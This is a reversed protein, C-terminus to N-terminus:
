RNHHLAPCSTFVKVLRACTESAHASESQAWIHAVTNQYRTSPDSSCRRRSTVNKHNPAVAATILQQCRFQLLCASPHARTGTPTGQMHSGAGRALPLKVFVYKQMVHSSATHKPFAIATVSLPLRNVPSLPLRNVPAKSRRLSQSATHM